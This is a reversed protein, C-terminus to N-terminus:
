SSFSARWRSLAGDFDAEVEALTSFWAQPDGLPRSTELLQVLEGRWGYLFSIM